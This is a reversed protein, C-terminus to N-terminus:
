NCNACLTYSFFYSFFLVPRKWWKAAFTCLFNDEQLKKRIFEWKIKEERRIKRKEYLLILLYNKIHLMTM